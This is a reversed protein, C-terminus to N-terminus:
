NREKDQGQREAENRERGRRNKTSQCHHSPAAAWWGLKAKKRKMCPKMSGLSAELTYTASPSSVNGLRRGGNGLHQLFWGTVGPGTHATSPILGLARHQMSSLARGAPGWGWSQSQKHKCEGRGLWRHPQQIATLSRSMIGLRSPVGLM